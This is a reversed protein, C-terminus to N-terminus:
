LPRALVAEIEALAADAYEMRQLLSNIRREYGPNLGAVIIALEIVMAARANEAEAVRERYQKLDVM